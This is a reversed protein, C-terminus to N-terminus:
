AHAIKGRIDAIVKQVDARAQDLTQTQIIYDSRQRKEADPMQRSLILEFDKESMENRALVRERQTEASATVVVTFDCQKDAGTEFLLPIDLLVLDSTAHEIFAARDAAVLPHVIAQLQDMVLPDTAIMDRLAPRSIAGDVIAGPLANRIAAIAQGNPEYLQHVVADADWVPIDADAFMQATTSKGMGISGTLGIVTTM